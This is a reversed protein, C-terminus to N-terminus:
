RTLWIYGITYVGNKTNYNLSEKYLNEEWHLFTKNRLFLYLKKTKQKKSYRKNQWLILAMFCDEIFDYCLNDQKMSSSLRQEHSM